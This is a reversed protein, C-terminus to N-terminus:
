PFIVKKVGLRDALQRMYEHSRFMEFHDDRREIRLSNHDPASFTVKRKALDKVDNYSIIQVVSKNFVKESVLRNIAATTEKPANAITHSKPSIKPSPILSQLRM